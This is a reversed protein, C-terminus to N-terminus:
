IKEKGCVILVKFVVYDDNIYLDKNCCNDKSILILVCLYIVIIMMGLIVVIYCGKRWIIILYVVIIILKCGIIIIKYKWKSCEVYYCM